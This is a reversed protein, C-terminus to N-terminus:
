LPARLMALLHDPLQLSKGFINILLSLCHDILRREVESPARDARLYSKPLRNLLTSVQFGSGSKM